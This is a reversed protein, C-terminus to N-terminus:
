YNKKPADQHIQSDSRSSDRSTKSADLEEDGQTAEESRNRSRDTGTTTEPKPQSGFNREPQRAQDKQGDQQQAM